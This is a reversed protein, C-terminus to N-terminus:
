LLGSKIQEEQEIRAILLSLSVSADRLLLMEHDTWDRPQPCHIAIIGELGGALNLAAALISVTEYDRVMNQVWSPRENLSIRLDSRAFIGGNEFMKMFEATDEPSLTVGQLNRMPPATICHTVQLAQQMNITAYLVRCGPFETKLLKLATNLLVTGAADSRVIEEVMSLIRVRAETERLVKEQKKRNSIERSSVVIENPNAKLLHAEFHHIQSGERLRYEVVQTQHTNFTTDIASWFAPLDENLIPLNRINRGLIERRPFYELGPPVHCNTITGDRAIRFVIDPFVDLSLTTKEQNAHQDHHADVPPFLLPDQDFPHTMTSFALATLCYQIIGYAAKLYSNM